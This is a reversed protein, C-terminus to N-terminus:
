YNKRNMTKIVKLNDSQGLATQYVALADAVGYDRVKSGLSKVDMMSYIKEKMEEKSVGKRNFLFKKVDNESYWEIAISSAYSMMVNMGATLGIIIAGNYSQAGHPLESLILWIDYRQIIETWLVHALETTRRILQDGKRIRSKKDDPKTEICGYDLVEGELDVVAWGWAKLSPDLTLICPKNKKSQRKM